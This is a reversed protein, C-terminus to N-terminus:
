HDKLVSGHKGHSAFLLCVFGGFCTIHWKDAKNEGGTVAHQQTGSDSKFLM